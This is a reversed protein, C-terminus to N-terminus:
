KGPLASENLFQNTYYLYIYDGGADENLDQLTSSNYQMLGHWTFASSTGMSYVYVSGRNWIMLGTVLKDSYDNSRRYAFLIIV